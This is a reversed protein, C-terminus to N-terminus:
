KLLDEFVKEGDLLEGRKLQEMGVAIKRHVEELASRKAAEEQALLRLAARVVESASQYDGTNVRSDVFNAQEQTFSINKSIREAM